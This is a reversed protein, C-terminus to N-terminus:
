LPIWVPHAMAPGIFSMGCYQSDTQSIQSSLGARGPILTLPRCSPQRIIARSSQCELEMTFTKFAQTIELTHNSLMGVGPCPSATSYNLQPRPERTSFSYIVNGLCPSSEQANSSPHIFTM